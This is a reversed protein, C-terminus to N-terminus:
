TLSDTVSLCNKTRSAYAAEGDKKTSLTEKFLLCKPSTETRDLWQCNEGCDMWADDTGRIEIKVVFEQPTVSEKLFQQFTQM